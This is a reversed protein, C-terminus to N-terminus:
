EYYEHYLWSITDYSFGHRQFFRIDKNKNDQISHSRFIARKKKRALIVIAQKEDYPNDHHDTFDQWAQKIIDNPIMRKYLEQKIHYPSKGKRHYSEILMMALQNENLYFEDELQQCIDDSINNIDAIEINKKHIFDQLKHKLKAKSCPYRSVYYLAYHYLRQYIKNPNNTM